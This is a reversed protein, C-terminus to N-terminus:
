DAVMELTRTDGARLEVTREVHKERTEARVVYRGALLILSPEPQATSWVAAGTEEHIDWLVDALVPTGGTVLRLKLAAAQPELVLQQAQGARVEVDRVARANITGLRGVVRYRGSMLALVPAPRSTVIVEPTASDLREVRYSVLEEAGWGAGTPRTALALRGAALNLTRRAVDGPGVALRERAEVSGARAVVYYTGPPVVFDAQRGTSRVVERRGKPADPDDEVVSFVVVEGPGATDQSAASLLLRAANLPIDIRGASGPPVVVSREARVLGQEVHVIYRGAPLLLLGEGGRFMALPSANERRSLTAQGAESVWVTADGLPAASKQAQARVQLTGANLVVNVATPRDDVAIEQRATVAGDRVEVVYHGPKAPVHPNLARSEFLVAGGAREAFVTWNLPLAIPDSGPVLLARLYLGPPGEAPVAAASQPALPSQPSGLAATAARDLGEGESGALRLAEELNTGIQEATRANFLRGGTAQPLCAMAAADAPRLGLGVVHVVIAARRLEEAAACVNQQCNDADDHILVLSRKGPGAPLSKAAERLATTLPGRGRPTVKDLADAFRAVDLPELPRLLEVDGCDGRRHGFVALGMRTQPAVKGLARRLAERALMVKSGRVGEINGAMSGSGDFVVIVSAPDQARAVEAGGLWLHALSTAVLWAWTPWRYNHWLYRAPQDNGM